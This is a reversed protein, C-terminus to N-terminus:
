YSMTVVSSQPKLAATEVALRVILTLSYASVELAKLFGDRRTTYFGGQLDERDAFAISHVLFDIEGFEARCRELIQRVQEEATADCPGFAPSEISKPLPLVRKELVGDQYALAVRAGQRAAEQAVAWAISRDNAVGFVLGKKGELLM